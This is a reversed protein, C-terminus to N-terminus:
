IHYSSLIIRLPEGQTSKADSPLPTLSETTRSTVSMRGERGRLEIVVTSAALETDFVAELGEDVDNHAKGARNQRDRAQAKMHPQTVDGRQSQCSSEAIVQKREGGWWRRLASLFVVPTSSSRIWNM